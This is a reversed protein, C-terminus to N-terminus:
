SREYVFRGMWQMQLQLLPALLIALLISGVNVAGFGIGALFGFIIALTIALTEVALRAYFINKTKFIDMILIMLEDFVGAPFDSQIIMSLGMTLFFTGILFLALRYGMFLSEFDFNSFVIIDWFDLFSSIGLIPILMFIYRWKRRYIMVIGMVTANIIGSSMGLTIDVLNSLNYATTDWPGAGLGTTLVMVVGFPLTVFGLVYQIIRIYFNDFPSKRKRKIM